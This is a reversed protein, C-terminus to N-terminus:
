RTADGPIPTHPTAQRSQLYDMMLNGRLSLGKDICLVQGNMANLLGSCLALVAQGCEEAELVMAPPIGSATLYDFFETGFFQEFSQTAVTGFRLVNVRTGGEFLHQSMYRAFLEHLAKSAAVFDYGTYFNDPGDSSVGIIHRPYRGFRAEMRRSYEIMPWTSYELTTFLSRKDYEALGTTRRALGANSIFFDVSDHQEGIRELLRDTDEDRAVDAEFHRTTTGGGRLLHRGPGSGGGLGM